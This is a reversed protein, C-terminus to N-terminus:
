PSIGVLQHGLAMAGLASPEVREIALALPRSASGLSASGGFLRPDGFDLVIPVTFM